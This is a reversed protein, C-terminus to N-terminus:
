ARRAGNRRNRRHVSWGLLTFGGAMMAWTGPEPVPLASGKFAWVDGYEPQYVGLFVDWEPIYKWKGAVGTFSNYLGPGTNDRIRDPRVVGSLDPSIKKMHWQGTSLDGPATLEWVDNFGQWLLFRDRAADYDIGYLDGTTGYSAQVFPFAAADSPNDFVIRSNFKGGNALAPNALDYFVFDAGRVEVWLRRDQNYTGAGHASGVTGSVTGVLEYKDRSPDNLDQITYRFLSGNGNSLYVIDKGNEDAYASFGGAFTHNTGSFTGQPWSDRNQWMNGGAIADVPYAASVIHSGSIGGTKWPDAKSPDWLYPGTNRLVGGDYIQPLGGNNYPPGGFTLFRDLRPLYINNDYTHMAIPSNMPGDITEYRKEEPKLPDAVVASPLSGREWLGTSSHWLFVGNGPYNAHGGGWVILDGRTSDWAMSGWSGIVSKTNDFDLASPAWSQYFFNNNLKLWSNEPANAIADPIPVAAQLYQPASLFLCAAGSLLKYPFQM